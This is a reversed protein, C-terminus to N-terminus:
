YQISRENNETTMVNENLVRTKKYSRLTNAVVAHVDRVISTLTKSPKRGNTLIIIVLSDCFVLNTILGTYHFTVTRRRLM